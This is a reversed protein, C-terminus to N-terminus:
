ATYINISHFLIKNYSIDLTLDNLIQHQLHPLQKSQGLQQLVRTMLAVAMITGDDFGRAGLDSSVPFDGETM